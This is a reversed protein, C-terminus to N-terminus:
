NAKSYYGIKIIYTYKYIYIYIYGMTHQLGWINGIDKKKKWKEKIIWIHM